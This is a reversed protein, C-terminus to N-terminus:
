FLSDQPLGAEAAVEQYEKRLDFLEEAIQLAALAATRAQSYTPAQERIGAIKEEVLKVISEMQEVSKDGRLVYEVGDLNFRLYNDAKM